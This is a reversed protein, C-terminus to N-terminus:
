VDVDDDNPAAEEQRQRERQLALVAPVFFNMEDGDM